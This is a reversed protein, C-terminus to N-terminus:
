QQQIYEVGHTVFQAPVTLRGDIEGYNLDFPMQDSPWCDVYRFTMIPASSKEPGYFHVEIDERYEAPLGFRKTQPNFVKSRWANILRTAFYDKTEYFTLSIPDIEVAGPYFRMSGGYYRPVPLIKAHPPQAVEVLLREPNETFPFVVYWRGQMAPDLINNALARTLRAM